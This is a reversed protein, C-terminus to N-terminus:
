TRPSSMAQRLVNNIRTQYGKGTNKFWALVDADIKITLQKKIPVMKFYEPHVPKFQALQEDTLRPSDEDFSIPYRAANEVEALQKATPM